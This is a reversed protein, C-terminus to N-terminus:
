DERPMIKRFPSKKEKEAVEKEADQVKQGNEPEVASVGKERMEQLFAVRCFRVSEAPTEGANKERKEKAKARPHEKNGASVDGQQDQREQENRFQEAFFSLCHLFVTGSKKM